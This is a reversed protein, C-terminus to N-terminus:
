QKSTPVVLLVNSHLQSNERHKDYYQWRTRRPTPSQKRLLDAYTALYKALYNAVDPTVRPALSGIGVHVAKPKYAKDVLDVGSVGM